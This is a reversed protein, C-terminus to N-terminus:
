VRLTFVSLETGTKIKEDSGWISGLVSRETVHWARPRRRSLANGVTLVM